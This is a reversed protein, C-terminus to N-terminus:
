RFSYIFEEPVGKKILRKFDSPSCPLEDCAPFKPPKFVIPKVHKKYFQFSADLSVESGNRSEGNRSRKVAEVPTEFSADLKPGNCENRSRKAILPTEFTMASYSGDSSPTVVKKKFEPTKVVPTIFVTPEMFPNLLATVENKKVRRKPFPIWVHNAPISKPVSIPPM